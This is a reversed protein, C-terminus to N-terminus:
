LIISFHANRKRRKEWWIIVSSRRSQLHLLIWVYRSRAVIVVLEQWISCILLRYGALRSRCLMYEIYIYLSYAFIQRLALTAYQNLWCNITLALSNLTHLPHLTYSYNYASMLIDIYSNSSYLPVDSCKSAGLRKPALLENACIPSQATATSESTSRHSNLPLCETDLSYFVSISKRHSSVFHIRTISHCFTAPVRVCVFLPFGTRMHSLSCQIGDM